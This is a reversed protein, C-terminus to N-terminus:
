EQVRLKASAITRGGDTVRLFYLGNALGHQRLQCTNGSFSQVQVVKGQADYVTAL